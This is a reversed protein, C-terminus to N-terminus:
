PTPTPAPLHVSRCAGFEGLGVRPGWKNQFEAGVLTNIWADGPVSERSCLKLLLARASMLLSRARDSRGSNLFYEAANMEAGLELADDNLASNSGAVEADRCLEFEEIAKQFLPLAREDDRATQAAQATKYTHRALSCSSNSEAPTATSRPKPPGTPNASCPICIFIVALVNTATIFARSV